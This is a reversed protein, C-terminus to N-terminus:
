DCKYVDVKRSWKRVIRMIRVKRVLTYCNYMRKKKKKGPIVTNQM